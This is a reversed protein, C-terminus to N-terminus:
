VFRSKQYLKSEIFFWKHMIHNNIADFVDYKKQNQSKFEDSKFFENSFEENQNSDPWSELNKIYDSNKKFYVLSRDFMDTLRDVNKSSSYFWQDAYGQNLQNWMASYIYNMDLNEDFNIESVKFPHYGNYKDIQGLDFRGVICCDYTFKNKKEYQIKLQISEKRSYFFSLSNSINRFIQRNPCNFTSEKIKNETILSSFDKPKEFNYDVLGNQYKKVINDELDTDWSHIFIDVDRNKLLTKKIYECGDDGSNKSNLRNNYRGYLCLAIRKM